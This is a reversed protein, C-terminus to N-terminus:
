EGETSTTADYTVTQEDGTMTASVITYKYFDIGKLKYWAIAYVTDGQKMEYCDYQIGMGNTVKDTVKDIHLQESKRNDNNGEVTKLFYIGCKEIEVDAHLEAFTAMARVVGYTTSYMGKDTEISLNPAVVIILDGNQKPYGVTNGSTNDAFISAGSALSGSVTGVKTGSTFAGKAENTTLGITGSFGDALTLKTNGDLMINSQSSNSEYINDSVTASGSFKLSPGTGYIRIGAAGVASTTKNNTISGGTMEFQSNNYLAVAGAKEGTCGTISTNDLILKGSVIKLVATQNDSVSTTVSSISSNNLTIISYDGSAQIFASPTGASQTVTVNNFTLYSYTVNFVMGGTASNINTNNITVNSHDNGSNGALTLGTSIKLTKGNGNLSWNLAGGVNDGPAYECDALLEVTSGKAAIIANVFRTYYNQGIRAVIGLSGPAVSNATGASAILAVDSSRSASSTGIVATGELTVGSEVTINSSGEMNIPAGTCSIDKIKSGTKFTVTGTGNRHSFIHSCSNNETTLVAGNGFVLSVGDGIAIDGTSIIVNNFTVHPKEDTANYIGAIKKDLTVKHGNGHLVFSCRSIANEGDITYDKYITLECPSDPLVIATNGMNCNAQIVTNLKDKSYSIVGDKNIKIFDASYYVKGTNDRDVLNSNKSVTVYDASATNLMKITAGEGSVTGSVPGTINAMGSSVNIVGSSCGWINSVLTIGSVNLTGGTVDAFSNSLSLSSLQVGNVNLTAGTNVKICSAAWVWDIKSGSNMSVTATDKVIMSYQGSFVRENKDNVKGAIVAKNGLTVNVSGPFTLNDIARVYIGEFTVTGSQAFETNAPFSIVESGTKGKVTYSVASSSISSQATFSQLVTIVNNESTVANIASNLDTYEVGGVEAVMTEEGEAFIGVTLLATIMVLLALPLLWKTKKM